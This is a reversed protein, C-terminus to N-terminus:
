GVPIRGQYISPMLHVYKSLSEARAHHSFAQLQYQSAMYPAIHSLRLHRFYHPHKGTAENVLNRAQRTTIHQQPDTKYVYGFSVYHRPFIYHEPEAPKIYEIVAKTFSDEVPVWTGEYVEDRRKLINRSIKLDTQIQEFDKKQIQVIEGIRGAILYTLQVMVKATPNEVQNVIRNLQERRLLDKFSDAKYFTVGQKESCTPSKAKCSLRHEKAETGTVRTDKLSHCELCEYRRRTYKDGGKTVAEWENVLDWTHYEVGSAPM